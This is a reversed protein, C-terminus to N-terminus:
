GSLPPYPPEPPLLPSLFVTACLKEHVKHIVRVGSDSLLLWGPGANGREGKRGSYIGHNSACCQEGNWLDSCRAARRLLEAKVMIATPRIILDM